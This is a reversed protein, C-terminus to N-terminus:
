LKAAKTMLEVIENAKGNAMLWRPTEPLFVLFLLIALSVGGFELLYVRWTSALFAFGPLTAEAISDPLLVLTGALERHQPGVVELTYVSTISMIGGSALGVFLRIATFTWYNPTFATGIMFIIDISASLILAKGRGFRFNFSVFSFKSM